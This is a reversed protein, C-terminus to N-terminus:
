KKAPAMTPTAAPIDGAAKAAMLRLERWRAKDADYRANVAAIEKQKAEVLAVQKALESNVSALEREQVPPLPKDGAAKKRADLEDKRKNLVVTYAMSSQVQAEITNLSRNRALDIENETTYTSLLARDRRDIIEQERALQQQREAEQERARRQEPTLAPETKRITVGQKNLEVNGKNVARASAQRHLPCRRKRRGVQVACGTRLRDRHRSHDGRVAARRDGAALACGAMEPDCWARRSMALSPEM